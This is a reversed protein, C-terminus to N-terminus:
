FFGFVCPTVNHLENLITDLKASFLDIKYRYCDAGRLLKTSFQIIILDVHLDRHHPHLHHHLHLRPTAGTADIGEEEEEGPGVAAALLHGRGAGLHRVRPVGVEPDPADRDQGGVLGRHLAGEAGPAALARDDQRVLAPAHPRLAGAEVVLGEVGEPM